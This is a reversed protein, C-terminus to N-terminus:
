TFYQYIIMGKAYERWSDTSNNQYSLTIQLTTNSMNRLNARTTYEWGTNCFTENDYYTTRNLDLLMDVPSLTLSSNNDLAHCCIHLYNSYPFSLNFRITSGSTKIMTRINEFSNIGNETNM